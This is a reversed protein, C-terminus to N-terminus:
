RVDNGVLQFHNQIPMVKEIFFIVLRAVLKEKRIDGFIEFLYGFLEKSLRYIQLM